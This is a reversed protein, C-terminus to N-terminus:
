GHAPRRRARRRPRRRPQFAGAVLRLFDVGAELRSLRRLRPEAPMAAFRKVRARIATRKAALGLLPRRRPSGGVQALIGLPAGIANAPVPLIQIFPDSTSQASAFIWM